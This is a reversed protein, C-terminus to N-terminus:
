LLHERPHCFLLLGLEKRQVVREFLSPGRSLLDTGVQGGGALLRVGVRFEPGKVDLATANFLDALLTGPMSWRPSVGGTIGWSTDDIQAQVPAPLMLLGAVVFAAVFCRNM